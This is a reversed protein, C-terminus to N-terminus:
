ERGFTAKRLKSKEVALFAIPAKNRDGRNYIREIEDLYSLLSPQKEFLHAHASVKKIFRSISFEDVWLTKSLAQVFLSSSAFPIKKCKMHNIITKMSNAHVQSGRKFRGDKFAATKNNSGATEGALLSVACCLPVGTDEVYEKVAIYEPLGQRIYSTLYDDMTWTNTAKELEHISVGGDDCMVFKVPIGLRKAVEFRQQGGKIQLKKSGSRVVHMPYADIWGYKKMSKELMSLQRTDRNFEHLDFLSYDHTIQINVKPM